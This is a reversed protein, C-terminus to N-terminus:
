VIEYKIKSSMDSFLQQYMMATIGLLGSQEWNESIVLKVNSSIQELCYRNLAQQVPNLVFRDAKSIVGGIVIVDPNLLQVTFSLGKGLAIGLQNFLDISLEDGALAANVIDEPQLDEIRTKFKKTLQSVKGAKIGESAKKVLVYSSAVTELCGKKGCICLEGEDVFKAHSIEGAFGNSGNYLRGNLIMGMGIGWNWNIIVANAHGKANGFVYEGYAQMRADNNVYVMEGFKEHLRERVNRFEENKITYNIGNEEDVLGPMTLGIGFIREEDIKSEHILKQAVTYIKDVLKDDDINTTFYTIPTVTQNHSNYITMKGRIHGLECAIIFVSSNSLRFLAPKRGGSSVGTGGTEVMKIETLENLLALATPFSVGLRSAITKGSLSDYKYLLNLIKKKQRYKKLENGTLNAKNIDQVILM